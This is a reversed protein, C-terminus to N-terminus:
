HNSAAHISDLFVDLDITELVGGVSADLGDDINVTSEIITDTGEKIYEIRLILFCIEIVSVKNRCSTVQM